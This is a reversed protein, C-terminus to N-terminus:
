RPRAPEPRRPRRSLTSEAYVGTSAIAFPHEITRLARIVVPGPWVGRAGADSWDLPVREQTPAVVEDRHARMAPSSAWRVLAPAEHLAVNEAIWRRYRARCRGLTTVSAVPEGPLWVRMTVRVEDGPDPIDARVDVLCMVHHDPANAACESLAFAGETRVVYCGDGLSIVEKACTPVDLPRGFIGVLMESCVAREAVRESRLVDHTACAGLLPM